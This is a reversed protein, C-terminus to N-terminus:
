AARLIVVGRWEERPTQTWGPNWYYADLHIVELYLATGLRKAFTSKGAGSAGIVVIKEM